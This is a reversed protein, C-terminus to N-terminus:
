RIYNDRLTNYPINYIQSVERMNKRKSGVTSEIKKQELICDIASQLKASNESDKYDIRTKKREEYM